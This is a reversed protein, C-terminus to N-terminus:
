ILYSTKDYKILQVKQNPYIVVQDSLVQMPHCRAEGPNLLVVDPLCYVLERCDTIGHFTVCGVGNRLVTLDEVKALQEENLLWLDPEVVLGGLDM